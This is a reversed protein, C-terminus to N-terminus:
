ELGISKGKYSQTAWVPSMKQNGTQWSGGNNVIFNLNTGIYEKPIKVSYTNGNKTM